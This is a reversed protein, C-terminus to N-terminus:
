MLLFPPTPTSAGASTIAQRYRKDQVDGAAFVGEVSTCPTGPKTVVYGGEDVEVQGKVLSTAPDHGIAYFLGNAELTEQKTEIVEGDKNRTSIEVVLHTMVRKDFKEKDKTVWKEKDEAEWKKLKEPTLKEAVKKLDIGTEEDLFDDGYKDKYYKILEDETGMIKVGTTNYRITLVKRKSPKEGPIKEGPIKEEPVKDTKELDELRKIMIASAKMKPKRVLVGVHSAYKTLFSAEEAASDGGGIVVLPKKSFLPLAGDCVACASVGHNWYAKEGPLGLRKASAGTALIIADATHVVGPSWETEYQFPRNSLDLKSVTESIITTGFKVSQKKM